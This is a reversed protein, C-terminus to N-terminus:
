DRKVSIWYEAIGVGDRGEFRYRALGENVLTAGGPMAIKTPAVTLVNGDMSIRSGDDLSGTFRTAKHLLSNPHFESEVVGNSLRHYKGGRQLFGEGRITGGADRMGTLAFALDAGFTAALWVNFLAPESSRKKEGSGISSPKWTRPGWSKDRLGWGDIQWKAGGVAITGTARGTQEFHGSEGRWFYFPDATADFRVNMDLQAPKFWGQPRDKRPTILIRDDAVDQAEGHYAITWRRFPEERMLALAGVELVQQAGQSFDKRSHTFAVRDGGLYVVHLGDSWGENARFGMRTFAGIGTKPDAVYFYYSESWAPHDGVPHPFDDHPNPTQDTLEPM